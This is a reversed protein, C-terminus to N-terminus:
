VAISSDETHGTRTLETDSTSAADNSPSEAATAPHHLYQVPAKGLVASEDVHVARITSDPVDFM